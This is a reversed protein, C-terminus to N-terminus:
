KFDNKSKTEKNDIVLQYHPSNKIIDRTDTTIKFVLKRKEPKDVPWYVPAPAQTIYGRHDDPIIVKTTPIVKGDVNEKCGSLVDCFTKAYMLGRNDLDWDPDGNAITDHYTDCLIFQIRVPLQDPKIPELKAVEPIMQAKIAKIIKSREYDAMTLQHLKQGNIISFKQKGVNKINSIVREGTELNYLFEKTVRVKKRTVKFDKWVYPAAPMRVGTKKYISKNCYKLPIKKSTGKEFYKPRVKNSIVYTRVYNNITVIAEYGM